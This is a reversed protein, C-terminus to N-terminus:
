MEHFAVVRDAEERPRGVVVDPMPREQLGPVHVEHLRRQLAGRRREQAVAGPEVVQQAAVGGPEKEHRHQPDRGRPDGAPPDGRSM